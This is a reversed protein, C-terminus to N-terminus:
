KAYRQLWLIASRNTCKNVGLLSKGEKGKRRGGEGEKRGEKKGSGKDRENKRVDMMVVVGMRSRM